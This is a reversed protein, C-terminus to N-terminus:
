AETVQATCFNRVNKEAFNNSKQINCDVNTYKVEYVLSTALKSRSPWSLKSPSKNHIPVGEPFFDTIKM